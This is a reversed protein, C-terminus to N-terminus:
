WMLYKKKNKIPSKKEIPVKPVRSYYSKGKRLTKLISTHPPDSLTEKEKEETKDDKTPDNKTIAGSGRGKRLNMFVPSQSLARDTLIPLPPFDRSTIGSFEEYDTAEDSTSATNFDNSPTIGFSQM